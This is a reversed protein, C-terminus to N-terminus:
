TTTKVRRLSAHRSASPRRVQLQISHIIPVNYEHVLLRVVVSLRQACIKLAVIVGRTARVPLLKQRYM